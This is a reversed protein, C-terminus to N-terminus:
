LGLWLKVAEEIASLEAPQLDGLRKMLRAPATTAIGQVDFAGTKLFHKPLTVEFRTGRVSTAHPVLTVLDRDQPDAPISVVRPRIKATFGLDVLWVEGRHVTPM